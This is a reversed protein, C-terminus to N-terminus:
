VEDHKTVRLSPACESPQLSPMFIGGASLRRRSAFAKVLIAPYIISLAWGSWTGGSYDTSQQGQPNNPDIMDEKVAKRIEDKRIEDKNPQQGLKQSQKKQQELNNQTQSSMPNERKM